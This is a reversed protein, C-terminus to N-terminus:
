FSKIIEKRNKGKTEPLWLYIIIAGIFCIMAPFFRDGAFVFSYKSFGYEFIWYFTVCFTVGFEKIREPM